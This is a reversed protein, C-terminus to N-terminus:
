VYPSEQRSDIEREGATLDRKARALSSLEWEVPEMDFVVAWAAMRSLYRVRELFEGPSRM